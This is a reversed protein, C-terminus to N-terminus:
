KALEEIMAADLDSRLDAIEQEVVALDGKLKGLEVQKQAIYERLSQSRGELYEIQGGLFRTTTGNM